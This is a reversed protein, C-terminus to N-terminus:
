PSSIKSKSLLYVTCDSFRFCLCRDAEPNGHFQDIDKNECICFTSKRMIHSLHHEYFATLHSQMSLVFMYIYMFMLHLFTLSGPGLQEFSQKRLAM